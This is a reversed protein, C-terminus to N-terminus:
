ERRSPIRQEKCHSEKQEINRSRWVFDDFQLDYGVGCSRTPKNNQIKYLVVFHNQRWHLICPLESEKLDRFNLKVGLSRFGIKESADSIGVLSVGEKSIECFQRLTELRFNRGYYKAVMRLCTPGCDM